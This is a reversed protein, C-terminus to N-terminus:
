LIEFQYGQQRLMEAEQPTVEMEQGVRGGNGFTYNKGQNGYYNQPTGGGYAYGYNDMQDLNGAAAFRARAIEPPMREGGTAMMPNYYGGYGMNSLIKAQVYEPLAEFGANNTGGNEMSRANIKKEQALMQKTPKKGSGKNARINDWLGRRSYSGDARRIMEGGKAMMSYEDEAYDAAGGYAMQYDPIYGGMEYGYGYSGSSNMTNTDDYEGGDQYWANGSFTSGGDEFRLKKALNLSKMIWPTNKAAMYAEKLMAGTGKAETGLGKTDKLIQGEAEAEKLMNYAELDKLGSGARLESNFGAIENLDLNNLIGKQKNPLGKWWKQFDKASGVVNDMTTNKLNFRTNALKEEFQASNKFAGSKILNRINAAEYATIGGAAVAAATLALMKTTGSTGAKAPKPLGPGTNNHDANMISDRFIPPVIIPGSGTSDVKPGGGGNNGGGNSGGNNGGSNGGGNNGGGTVNNGGGVNGPNVTYNYGDIGNPNDLLQKLLKTNQAATGRYNKIGMSEAILKRTNYDSAKGNMGLYDVISPGTYGPRTPIPASTPTIPQQAQVTQAQAVMQAQQPTMEEDNWEPHWRMHGYGQQSTTDNEQPYEDYGNMATYQDMAARYSNYDPFDEIRPVYVQQMGDQAHPLYGFFSHM